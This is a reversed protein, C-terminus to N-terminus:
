PLGKQGERDAGDCVKAIWYWYTSTELRQEKTVVEM